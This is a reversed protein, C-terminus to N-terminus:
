PYVELHKKTIADRIRHRLGDNRTLVVAALNNQVILSPPASWMIQMGAPAVTMSDLRDTDRGRAGADGYIFVQVTADGVQLVRGSASMFPQAISDGVTVPALDAARFVAQVKALDWLFDTPRITDRVRRSSVSATGGSARDAAVPSDGRRRGSEGSCGGTAVVLLTAAVVLARSYATTNGPLM